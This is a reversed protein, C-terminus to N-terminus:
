LYKKTQHEYKAKVYLEKYDEIKFQSLDILYFRQNGNRKSQFVKALKRFFEIKSDKLFTSTYNEYLYYLVFTPVRDIGQTIQYKSTFEEISDKFSPALDSTKKNKEIRSLLEELKTM